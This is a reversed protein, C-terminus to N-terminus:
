GNSQAAPAPFTQVNCLRHWGSHLLCTSTTSGHAPPEAAPVVAVTCKIKVAQRQPPKAVHRCSAQARARPAEASPAAPGPCQWGKKRWAAAYPHARARDKLEPTGKRTEEHDAMTETPSAVLPKPRLTKPSRNGTHDM